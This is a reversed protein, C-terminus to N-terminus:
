VVQEISRYRIGREGFLVNICCFHCNFPCGLSTYIVAYGHRHDIHDFCHWNHARYRGMPLLDWAVGPLEGDLDTILPAPDNGVIEEGDRYWLGPVDAYDDTGARLKDLLPRITHPGEGQCVFDVAEEQMTREPLASVHLGGLMQKIEPGAERIARCISGADTMKQTSASPNAGFVVTMALLPGTEAVRAAIEAPGLWEPEGGVICRVVVLVGHEARQKNAYSKGQAIIQSNNTCVLRALQQSNGM